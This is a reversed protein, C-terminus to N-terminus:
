SNALKVAKYRRPLLKICNDIAEQPIAEWEELIANSFLELAKKSAGVGLSTIPRKGLRDKLLAWVNEIPNLDASYAPHEFLPIRNRLFM